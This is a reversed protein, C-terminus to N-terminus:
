AHAPRLHGCGSSAGAGDLRPSRRALVSRRTPSRAACSWRSAGRRAAGLARGPRGGRGRSTGSPTPCRPSAAPWSSGSGSTPAARRAHAPRGAPRWDRRRDAPRRPWSAPARDRVRRGRRRRRAPRGPLEWLLAGVPHRYQRILLSGTRRRRARGRRGRRSARVVDRVARRQRRADDREDTRVAFVPRPAAATSRCRGAYEDAAPEPRRRGAQAAGARRRRRDGAQAGRRRGAAPRGGRLRAAAASAAGAFLPHARTPRSRFEPHAQTAVFYPHLTATCSSSSSWGATRALDRLVRLGAEDLADRYANNVEYRHRHREDVRTAGYLRARGVHGRGARGPLAGLRMTGGMDGSAPSSTTRTPWRPSSRTRRHGRRVGALQRRGPRGPQPRGRHGHVAPGPVPRPDPHRERPRLPGRRDQGRHRARRLRRPHLVGDVGALAGRRAPRPRRLRRLAGLPHQGPRRQRVRGGAAGRHGVPLRRAPRHVQRGARRHGDQRPHHVRDCCTTGARDLRRRPVAPRAPARRLRGPGRPAAGEPHRLHSPADVAAVVAEDDVDCM